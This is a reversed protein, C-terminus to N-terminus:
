TSLEKWYQSSTDVYQLYEVKQGSKLLCFYDWTEM